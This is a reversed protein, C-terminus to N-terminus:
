RTDLLFEERAFHTLRDSLSELYLLRHRHVVVTRDLGLGTRARVILADDDVLNLITGGVEVPRGDGQLYALYVREGRAIWERIRLSDWM